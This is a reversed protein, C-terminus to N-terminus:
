TWVYFQSLIELDRIAAINAENHVRLLIEYKRLLKKNRLTQINSCIYACSDTNLVWKFISIAINVDIILVDNILLV